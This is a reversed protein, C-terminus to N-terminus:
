AIYCQRNSQRCTNRSIKNVQSQSLAMLAYAATPLPRQAHPDARARPPPQPWAGAPQQARALWRLAAGAAPAAAVHRACRALWRAAVATMRCCVMAMAM